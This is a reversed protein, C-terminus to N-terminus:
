LQSSWLQKLDFALVEKVLEWVYLIALQTFQARRSLLPTRKQFYKNCLRLPFVYLQVMQM